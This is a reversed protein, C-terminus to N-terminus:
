YWHPSQAQWFAWAREPTRYRAKIYRLGCVSQIYADSTKKCGYGAWTTDLFQFLGYATSTPNQARNNFGSEHLILEYLAGSTAWSAPVHVAATARVMIPHLWAPLRRPGVVGGSWLRTAATVRVRRSVVRTNFAADTLRFRMTYYGHKGYGRFRGSTKLTIRSVGSPQILEFNRTGGGRIAIASMEAPENLRVRPSLTPSISKHTLRPVTLVPAHTDVKVVESALVVESTADILQVTYRGDAAVAGLNTLGEWALHDAVGGTTTGSWLNRVVTGSASVITLDVDQATATTVHLEIADAKGDGNPSFADGLVELEPADVATVSSPGLLTLCMALAVFTLAIPLVFQERINRIWGM